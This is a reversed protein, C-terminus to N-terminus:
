RCEAKCSWAIGVEAAAFLLVGGKLYKPLNVGAIRMRGLVKGINAAKSSEGGILRGVTRALSTLPEGPMQTVAGKPVRITPIAALTVATGAVLYGLQRDPSYRFAGAARNM